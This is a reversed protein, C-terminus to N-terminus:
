AIAGEYHRLVQQIHDRLLNPASCEKTGLHELAQPLYQGVLSYPLARDGLEALFHSVFGQMERQPWYYRIRDSLSYLCKYAIEGDSGQYYKQWYQPHEQLYGLVQQTFDPANRSGGSLGYRELERYIASLAFLAERYAYTLWPGVKLIAYRDEVLQRLQAARQYDTSHAEFVLGLEAPLRSLGRAKAREYFVINDDGFEVGPQVVMAVVRQWARELGHRAFIERTIRYSQRAAEPATPVVGEEKSQQGGPTPVETGIIYIPAGQDRHRGEEWAQEAARCLRAARKAVLEDSIAGHSSDGACAMSADLHIKRYGARVYDGVLREAKQMAAEGSEHQWANPGLHDGGLLLRESPFRLERALNRVYQMFDAPKMGTYGGYQDVQNSTSEILLPYSKDRCFDFAARLVEPHGSCVSYIGERAQTMSDRPGQLRQRLAELAQESTQM